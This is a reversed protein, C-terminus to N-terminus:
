SEKIQKMVETEIDDESIDLKITIGVDDLKKLLQDREMSAKVYSYHLDLSKSIVSNTFDRIVVYLKKKYADIKREHVYAMDEETIGELFGQIMDDLIPAYKKGHNADSKEPKWKEEGM